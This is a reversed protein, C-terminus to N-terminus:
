YFSLVLLIEIFFSNPLPLPTRWYVLPTRLPLLHFGGAYILADSVIFLLHMAVMGGPENKIIASIGNYLASLLACIYALKAILTMKRQKRQKQQLLLDEPLKLQSLVCSFSQNEQLMTDIRKKHQEMKALQCLYQDKLIFHAMGGCLGAGALLLYHPITLNPNAFPVLLYTAATLM